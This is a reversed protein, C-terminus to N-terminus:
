PTQPDDDYVAVDHEIGEKPIPLELFPIMDHLLDSIGYNGGIVIYRRDDGTSIDNQDKIYLINGKGASYIKTTYRLTSASNKSDYIILYNQPIETDKSYPNVYFPIYRNSYQNDVTLIPSQITLYNTREEDDESLYTRATIGDEALASQCKPKSYSLEITQDFEYTNGICYDCTKSGCRISSTGAQTESDLNPNSWKCPKKISWYSKNETPISYAINFISGDVKESIYISRIKFDDINNYKLLRIFSINSTVEIKHWGYSPGNDPLTVWNQTGDLGLVKGRGTYYIGFEYGSYAEVPITTNIEHSTMTLTDTNSDFTSTLFGFKKNIRKLSVIKNIPKYIKDTRGIATSINFLIKRDEDTEIFYDTGNGLFSEIMFFASEIQQMIGNLKSATPAEGKQFRAKKPILKTFLQSIM